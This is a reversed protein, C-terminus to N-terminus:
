GRTRAERSASNTIMSEMYGFSSPCADRNFCGHDSIISLHIATGGTVHAEYRSLSSTSVIKSQNGSVLDVIVKGRFGLLAVVLTGLCERTLPPTQSFDQIRPTIERVFACRVKVPVPAENARHPLGPIPQHAHHHQNSPYAM